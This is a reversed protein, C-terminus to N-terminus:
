SLRKKVGNLKARMSSISNKKIYKKIGNKINKLVGLRPKGKKEKKWPNQSTTSTAIM